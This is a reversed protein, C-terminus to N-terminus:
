GAATLHQAPFISSFLKRASRSGTITLRPVLSAPDAGRYLEVLARASGTVVVDPEATRDARVLEGDRVELWHEEGDLDLRVRLDAGRAAVPDLLAALGGYVAHRPRVPEDGPDDLFPLGFRALARLVPVIRRGDDTLTYVTRAAPAPLDRQVVLGDEELDRLRDTLLNSAIGPLSGRLDTFRQAGFSLERLILLTWRDGVRDLAAAIGCYQEYSKNAM